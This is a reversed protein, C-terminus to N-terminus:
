GVEASIRSTSNDSVTELDFIDHDGRTVIRRNTLMWLVLVTSIVGVVFLIGFLLGVILKTNPSRRRSRLPRTSSSSDFCTRQLIPGCLGPNGEYSSSSFTDFQGGAPILGHLNNNAVSFYSLFNLNKLSAPIKGSLNNGSLDLKEMNTLTSIQDPITGSFSNNSLDLIRIFKMQGIEVPINGTLSNSGLYIAPPLYALRNYQLNSANKRLVFLPLELYSLDILDAIPQSSLEPLRILEKPFDGLLFNVSLDLYFLNPLNGMWGPISGTLKNHSLGLAELKTMQKLWNPIQGTLQCGGLALIRLNQFGEFSEVNPLAEGFFNMSVLITSLNKCGRLIQFAGRINTLTNNSLSLFSLSQLAVIDPLIEGELQNSALGIANLAKCSFLSAPLSGNFYNNGLDVKILQQLKSFDLASLEGVFNNARLKLVKLSTCNMLSQPLTGNFSNVHLLLQELNSLKGIGNPILGSFENGFLALIRLNALNIVSEGIPGNLKNRPLFIEQLAGASYIDDPLPGSLFNFGARLVELKECAGFGQGIPGQFGNDSFDLTVISPSVSVCISSPIGGTFSNNSVNFSRLNMAPRLFSSQISGNFQNSSLDLTHLTIPLTASIPLPGSLCNFCLDVIQLTTFSSFFGDPLPGSLCNHSLNLQTLKTLKSFSPSISGRLGRAPLWLRTVRDNGDCQVGEWSCCDGSSPWNLNSVNLSLSSLSALDMENCAASAYCYLLLIGFVVLYLSHNNHTTLQCRQLPQQHDFVIAHSNSPSPATNASSILTPTEKNHKIM